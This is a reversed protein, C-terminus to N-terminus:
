SYEIIYEKKDREEPIPGREKMSLICPPRQTSKLSRAVCCSAMATVMVTTIVMVMVMVMVMV